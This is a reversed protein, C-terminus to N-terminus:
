FAVNFNVKLTDTQYEANANAVRGTVIKTTGDPMPVSIQQPVIPFMVQFLKAVDLVGGAGLSVRFDGIDVKLRNDGADFRVSAGVTKTITKWTNGIHTTVTATFTMAGSSVNLRSNTIWWQWPVPEGPGLVLSGDRKTCAGIPISYGFGPMPRSINPCKISGVPICSKSRLGGPTIYVTAVGGDSLVGIKQIIRNLTGGSIEVTTNQGYNEEPLLFSLLLILIFLILKAM